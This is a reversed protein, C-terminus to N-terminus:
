GVQGQGQVQGQVRRVALGGLLMLGTALAPLSAPEPVVYTAGDLSTFCQADAFSGEAQVSTSGNAEIMLRGKAGSCLDVPVYARNEPRLEPPLTFAFGSAGGDMAGKLHVVGKIKSAGPSGTSFPGGTWGNQLTLSTDGVSATDFSLGDLSTFSQSDSSLPSVSALGTDRIFMRGKAAAFLNTPVYVDDFPRMSAPLTFATAATGDAMAGRLYSIGRILSVGPYGTSFPQGTWGNSLLFFSSPTSSHVFYAGDLSTFCQADAFDEEAQVSVVGSSLINLRGSKAGCMDVSVYVNTSPRMEIPLTFAPANSGNAIAGKFHVVGDIM